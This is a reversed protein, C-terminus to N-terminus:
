SVYKEQMMQVFTKCAEDNMSGGNVAVAAVLDKKPWVAYCASLWPTGGAYVFRDQAPRADFSLWRRSTAPKLFPDKGLHASLEYNGFQALDRVSMHANGAARFLVEPPRIM